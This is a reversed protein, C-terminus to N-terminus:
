RRGLYSALHSPRATSVWERLLRPKGPRLHAGLVDYGGRELAAATARGGAVYGSVAVRAWGRLEGVLPEGERLLARARRVQLAIVGRLRTPTTAAALDAERCGFATLDAQPLYVRGRAHDEGVDQCHELIQLAACVRDSRAFREPGAKAGRAQGFVHLVLRGIPAASLACYGLLDEFTEYRTVRQDRRNAELLDQFPDRPIDCEAALAAVARLAPLRASGGGFARDLDAEIADLLAEREGEPAEDGADDVLRGYGYLTFLGRRYRSPLIRAAVPFNETAALEGVVPRGDVTTWGLESRSM